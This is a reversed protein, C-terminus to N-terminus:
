RASHRERARPTDLVCSNDNVYILRLSDFQSCANVCLLVTGSIFEGRVIKDVDSDLFSLARLQEGVATAGCAGLSRLSMIGEEELLAAYGKLGLADLVESMPLGSRARAIAADVQDTATTTTTWKSRTLTGLHRARRIPAVVVAEAAPAPLWDVVGGGSVDEDSETDYGLFSSFVDM